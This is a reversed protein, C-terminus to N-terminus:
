ISQKKVVLDVAKQGSLKESRQRVVRLNNKGNSVQPLAGCASKAAKTRARARVCARVCACACVCVRVGSGAGVWVCVCM